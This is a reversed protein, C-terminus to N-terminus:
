GRIVRFVRIPSPSTKRVALRRQDLASPFIPLPFSLIMPLSNKLWLDCPNCPSPATNKVAFIVFIM